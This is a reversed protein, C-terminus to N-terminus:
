QAGHNTHGHAAGRGTIPSPDPVGSKLNLSRERQRRVIDRILDLGWGLAWVTVCLCVFWLTVTLAFTRDAEASGLLFTIKSM